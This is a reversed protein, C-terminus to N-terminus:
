RLLDRLAQIRTEDSVGRLADVAGKVGSRIAGATNGLALEGGANVVGRAVEGGFSTPAFSGFQTELEDIFTIQKIISDNFQGGNQTAVRELNNVSDIVNARTRNNSLVSRALTGLSRNLNDSGFNISAGAARQFDDIAQRTTSYTTNVADYAPFNSDLVGDINRRFSKLLNEAQGSLGEKSRGFTVQQDIFRKLRHLSHADGLEGSRTFVREVLNQIGTLDQIDSRSFDLPNAPDNTFRVGISDLDNIFQNTAPSGDVRRGRLGDAVEDLQNGANRNARTVVALRNSLADGVVDSPRNLAAFEKNTRSRELIDLARGFQAMDEPSGSRVLAVTGEDFGQSIALQAQPADILQGADNLDFGATRSDALEGDNILRAINQRTESRRAFAGLIATGIEGGVAGFGGGFVGDRLEGGPTDANSQVVGEVFGVGTNQGIRGLTSTTQPLQRAAAVGSAIAPVAQGGIRAITEGTSDPENVRRFGPLETGAASNVADVISNAAINNKLGESGLPNVGFGDAEGFRRNIKTGPLLNAGEILLNGATDALDGPLGFLNALGDSIGQGIQSLLGDDDRTQQDPQVQNQVSQSAFYEDVAQGIQEQSTGDPFNFTKGNAKVTIPM